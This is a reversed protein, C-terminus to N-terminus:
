GGGEKGARARIMDRYKIIDASPPGVDCHLNACAEREAAVAERDWKDM